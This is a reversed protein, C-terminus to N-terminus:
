VLRRNGNIISSALDKDPDCGVSVGFLGLEKLILALAGLLGPHEMLWANFAQVATVYPTLGRQAAVRGTRDRIALNRIAAIEKEHGHKQAKVWGRARPHARGQFGEDPARWTSWRFRSIPHTSHADTLGTNGSVSNEFLDITTASATARGVIVNAATLGMASISRIHGHRGATRSPTM